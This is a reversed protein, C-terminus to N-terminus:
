YHQYFSVADLDEWKGNKMMKPITRGDLKMLKRTNKDFYFYLPDVLAAIVFSSAKMKLVVCDKDGEKTERDKFIKFGVTELREPVGFRMHITDGNMIENWHKEVYTVMTPGIVFNDTLKEEAPKEKKGNREYEFHIKGDSVEIKGSEGLQKHEISFSKLANNELVIQEKVVPDGNLDKFQNNYFTKTGDVDEFHEYQYLTKKGDTGKETVNASIKLIPASTANGSMLIATFFTIFNM